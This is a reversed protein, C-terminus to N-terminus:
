PNVKKKEVFSVPQSTFIKDSLITLPVKGSSCETSLCASSRM